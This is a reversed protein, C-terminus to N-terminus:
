PGASRCCRGSFVPDQEPPLVAGSSEPPLTGAIRHFLASYAGPRSGCSAYDMPVPNRTAGHHHGQGKQDQIKHPLNRCFAPQLFPAYSFSFQLQWRLCELPPAMKAMTLVKENVLCFVALNGPLVTYGIGSMTGTKEGIEQSIHSYLDNDGSTHSGASHRDEILPLDLYDGSGLSIGPCRYLAVQFPLKLRGTGNTMVMVMLFPVVVGMSLMPITPLVMSSVTSM